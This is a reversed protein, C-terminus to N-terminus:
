YMVRYTRSNCRAFSMWQHPPNGETIRNRQNANNEHQTKRQRARGVWTMCIRGLKGRFGRLDLRDCFMCPAVPFRLPGAM